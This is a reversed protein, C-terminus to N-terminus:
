FPRALGVRRTISPILLARSFTASSTSISERLFVVSRPVSVYVRVCSHARACICAFKPNEGASQERRLYSLGFLTASPRQTRLRPSLASMEGRVNVTFLTSPRCLSSRVRLFLSPPTLILRPPTLILRPPSSLPPLRTSSFRRPQSGLEFKPTPRTPLHACHPTVSRANAREGEIGERGTGGSEIATTVAVVGGQRCVEEGLMGYEVKAKGEQEMRSRM